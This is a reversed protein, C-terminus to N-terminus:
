PWWFFHLQTVGDSGQCRLSYWRNRLSPQANAVLEIKGAALQGPTPLYNNISNRVGCASPIAGGPPQNSQTFGDYRCYNLTYRCGPRINFRFCSQGSANVFHMLGTVCQGTPEPPVVVNLSDCVPSSVSTLCAAASVCNRIVQGPLPGFGLSLNITGNNHCYSMITGGRTFKTNTGCNGNEGAYCSDIRGTTGNPLQWGCWHTHRSLFNHGLEHGVVNVTWSYVPLQSYSYFISSFAYPSAACLGGIWAMGGLVNTRTEVLHILDWGPQKPRNATFNVLITAPNNISAYPDVSTWVFLSSFQIAIKENRYIQKTINFLGSLFNSTNQVSSGSRLYLDYDAELAVRTIKCSSSLLASKEAGETIFKNSHGNGPDDKDQSHCEFPNPPLDSERVLLYRKSNRPDPGLNYQTGNASVVAMISNKFISIGTVGSSSSYHLGQVEKGQYRRGDSTLVAFDPSFIDVVKHVVVPKLGPISLTFSKVESVYLSDIFDQDVTIVTALKVDQIASITFDQVPAEIVLQKQRPISEWKKVKLDAVDPHYIKQGFATFSLILGWLGVLLKNKM